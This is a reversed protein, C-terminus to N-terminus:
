FSTTLESSSQHETFLERNFFSDKQATQEQEKETQYVQERLEYQMVILASISDANRKGNFKRMELIGVIDYFQHLTLRKNGKEDVSRVQKHWDIVYTLGMRKRETPMNMLFKRNNGKNIEKNNISEPEFALYHLLKERKAYDLV